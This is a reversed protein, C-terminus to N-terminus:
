GASAPQFSFEGSEFLAVCADVVQQDYRTERGARIEKLAADIGLAPRYPRHSAMAEVVDAVALIRAEPLIDDGCIGKPYGSGDQREHHQLVVQAVPGPFAIDALIEYAAQPHTRILALEIKSLATPKSLIEAPVGLKGIDHLMGATRLMSCADEGYELKRAIALALGTVRRQHGATYPDRREATRGLATLTAELGHSVSEYLRSNSIAIAIQTALRELV